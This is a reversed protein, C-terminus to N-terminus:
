VNQVEHKREECHRTPGFLSIMVNELPKQSTRSRGMPGHRNAHFPGLVMLGKCILHNVTIECMVLFLWVRIALNAQLVILNTDGLPPCLYGKFVKHFHVNGHWFTHGAPGVGAGTRARALPRRGGVQM